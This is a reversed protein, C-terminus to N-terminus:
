QTLRSKKLLFDVYLTTVNMTFTLSMSFTTFVWAPLTFTTFAALWVLFGPIIRMVLYLINAVTSFISATQGNNQSIEAATAIASIASQSTSSANAAMGMVLSSSAEVSSAM